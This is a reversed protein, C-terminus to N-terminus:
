NSLLREHQPWLESDGSNECKTWFNHYRTKNPIILIHSLSGVFTTKQNSIAFFYTYLTTLLKIYTHVYKSWIKVSKSLLFVENTTPCFHLIGTMYEVIKDLIVLSQWLLKWTFCLCKCPVYQPKIYTFSTQHLSSPVSLLFMKMWMCHPSDIINQPYM